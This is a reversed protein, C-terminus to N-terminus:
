EDAEAFLQSLPLRFGPLVNGGDLTEDEGLTVSRDVATFVQVTHSKADVYWVLLVGAEFYERLKWRMETKTNGKSIIEVVLDPAIKAIPGKPRKGRRYRAKSLFAIDPIRILGPKLRFMGSANTLIGLKRPRVHNALFACLLGNLVSEDFRMVKEVLTGQVLECLRDERAEVGVVDKATATGPIPLLRVRNAPVDGLQALLDAITKPTPSNSLMKM